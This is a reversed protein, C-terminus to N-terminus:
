KGRSRREAAEARRAKEIKRLKRIRDKISKVLVRHARGEHYSKLHGEDILQTTKTESIGMMAAAEPITVSLIKPM